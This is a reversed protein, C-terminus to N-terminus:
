AKTPLTLHTYSVAHFTLATWGPLPLGAPTAIDSLLHAFEKVLAEFLGQDVPGLRDIFQVSGEVTSRTMTSGLIDATGYVLGLLPDHGPTLVRHNNPTFGEGISQDFPVKAVKALWNDSPNSLTRHM